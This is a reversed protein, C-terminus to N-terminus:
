QSVEVILNSAIRFTYRQQAQLSITGVPLFLRRDDVRVCCCDMDMYRTVTRDIQCVTGAVTESPSSMLHLLRKMPMVVASIYYILFFGAAVDACINGLLMWSHNEPTRCATFVINLCLALLATGACLTIRRTYQKHFDPLAKGLVTQKM